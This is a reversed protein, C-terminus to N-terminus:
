LALAPRSEQGAPGRARHQWAQPLLALAKDAIQEQRQAAPMGALAAAVAAAAAQCFGLNAAVQRLRPRHLQHAFPQLGGAAATCCQCPVAFHAPELSPRQLAVAAAQHLPWGPYLEPLCGAARSSALRPPVAPEPMCQHLMGASPAAVQMLRQRLCIQPQIHSIAKVLTQEADLTM